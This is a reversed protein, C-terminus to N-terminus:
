IEYYVENNLVWDMKGNKQTEKCFYDWNSKGIAFLKM